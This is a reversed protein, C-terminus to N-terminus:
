VSEKYSFSRGAATIQGSLDANQDILVVFDDGIILALGIDITQIGGTIRDLTHQLYGFGDIISCQSACCHDFIKFLFVLPCRLHGKIIM